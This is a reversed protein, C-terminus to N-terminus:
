RRRRIAALGGLGALALSGPTPVTIILAGTVKKEIFAAGNAGSIAILNNNLVIKIKTWAPPQAALNTTSALTWNSIGSTAQFTQNDTAVRFNNLDTVFLGMNASVYGPNGPPFIGYDGFERITIQSFDFGVFAELEFELRDHATGVSGNTSDARFNQPFFVFTDGGVLTPSGFLGNDSGGNSWTFFNGVGNPNNWPVFANATGASAAVAGAIVAFTFVKRM